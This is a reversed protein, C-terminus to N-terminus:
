NNVVTVARRNQAWAVEDSGDVAPRDKGYSVLTIRMADVGLAVLAQKVQYARRYGLALNYERTGREDCHGEITVTLNPYQSLWRAQRRLTVMGEARIKSSDKDFFVRDSIDSATEVIARGSTVGRGEAVSGSQPASSCAALTGLAMAACLFRFTTLDPMRYYPRASMRILPGCRTLMPEPQERRRDCLGVPFLKSRM